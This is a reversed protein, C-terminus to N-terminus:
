HNPNPAWLEFELVRISVRYLAGGATGLGIMIMEINTSTTIGAYVFQYRDAEKDEVYLRGHLTTSAASRDVLLVLTFPVPNQPDIVKASLTPDIDPRNAPITNPFNMRQGSPRFQSTVGPTKIGEKMLIAAAFNGAVSQANIVQMPHIFTGSLMFREPLPVSLNQVDIAAQIGLNGSVSLRDYEILLGNPQYQFVVNANLTPDSGDMTFDGANLKDIKLRPQNAHTTLDQHYLRQSPGLLDQAIATTNLNAM